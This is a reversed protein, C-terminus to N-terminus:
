NWATENPQKPSSPRPKQHRDLFGKGIRIVQISSRINEELLKINESHLNSDKIWKSSIKWILHFTPIKSKWKQLSINLQGVTKALSILSEGLNNELKKEFNLQSEMNLSGEPIEIRNWQHERNIYWVTKIIVARYNKLDPIRIGGAQNKNKLIAHSLSVLEDWFSLYWLIERIHPFNEHM